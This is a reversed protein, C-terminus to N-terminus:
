LILITLEYLVLRLHILLMAHLSPIAHVYAVLGSPTFDEDDFRLPLLEIRSVINRFGTNNRVM